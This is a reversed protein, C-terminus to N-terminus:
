FSGRSPKRLCYAYKALEEQRTQLLDTDTILQDRFNKRHCGCPSSGKRGLWGGKEGRGLDGLVLILLDYPSSLQRCGLDAGDCRRWLSRPLYDLHSGFFLIAGPAM